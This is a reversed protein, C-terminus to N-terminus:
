EILPLHIKSNSTFIITFIVLTVLHDLKLSIKSFCRQQNVSPSYQNLACSVAGVDLKFGCTDCDM